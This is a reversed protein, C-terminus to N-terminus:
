VSNRQTGRTAGAMNPHRIIQARQKLAEFSPTYPARYKTATLVFVGGMPLRSSVARHQLFLDPKNLPVRHFAYQIPQVEFGLLSLWDRLRSVTLWHNQWMPSRKLRGLGGRVALLSYPNIGCVIVKGHPVTIREIERLVSHPNDVFELLHHLVVADQSENAIPLQDFYCLSDLVQSFGYQGISGFHFQRRYGEAALACREPISSLTLLHQAQPQAIAREILPVEENLVTRGVPTKFWQRLSPLLVDPSHQSRWMNM